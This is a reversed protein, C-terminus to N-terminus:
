GVQGKLGFLEKWVVIKAIEDLCEEVVVVVFVLLWWERWSSM